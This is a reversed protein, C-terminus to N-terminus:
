KLPKEGFYANISESLEERGGSNKIQNNELATIQNELNVLSNYYVSNSYRGGYINFFINLVGGIYVSKKGMNKIFDGFFMAYSGCSLFAIDFDIKEIDTGMRSCEDHWNRSKSGVTSPSDQANNYTIPTNYTLLEFNPFTYDKLLSDRRNNQFKISESLPSIVLIKKDEGWVKFTKLFPTVAEIFLYDFMVKNTTIHKLMAEHNNNCHQSNRLPPAAVTLYNSRYYYGILKQLYLHYNEPIEDWDFYGNYNKVSPLQSRWIENKNFYSVAAEYDSGGIRAFAFSDKQQMISTFADATEASEIDTHIFVDNSLLEQEMYSM